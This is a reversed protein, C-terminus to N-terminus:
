SWCVNQSLSECFHDSSLKMSFLQNRKQHFLNIKEPHFIAKTLHKAQLLWYNQFLYQFLGFSFCGGTFIPLSPYFIQSVVCGQQIKVVLLEATCIIQQLNTSCIKGAEAHDGDWDRKRLYLSSFTSDVTFYQLHKNEIHSFSSFYSSATESVYQRCKALLSHFGSEKATPWIYFDFSVHESVNGFAIKQGITGWVSRLPQTTLFSLFYLNMGWPWATWRCWAANSSWWIRWRKNVFSWNTM